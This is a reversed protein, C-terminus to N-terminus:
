SGILNVTSHKCLCNTLISVDKSANPRPECDASSRAILDSMRSCPQRQVCMEVSSTEAGM